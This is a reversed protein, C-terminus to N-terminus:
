EAGKEKLEQWTMPHGHVEGSIAHEVLLYHTEEGKSAGVVRDLKLWYYRTPGRAYPLQQGERRCRMELDEIEAILNQHYYGKHGKRATDRVVQAWEKRSAPPPLHKPYSEWRPEAWEEEQPSV